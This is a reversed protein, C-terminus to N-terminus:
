PRPTSPATSPPTSEGALRVDMPDLTSVYEVWGSVEPQDIDATALWGPPLGVSPLAGPVPALDVSATVLAAAPQSWATTLAAFRNTTQPTSADIGPVPLLAGVIAFAAAFAVFPGVPVAARASHWRVFPRM